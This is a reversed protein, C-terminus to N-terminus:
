SLLVWRRHSGPTSEPWLHPTYWIDQTGTHTGKVEATEESKIRHTHTHPPHVCACKNMVANTAFPQFDCLYGGTPPILQRADKCHLVTSPPPLFWFASVANSLSSRWLIENLFLFLLIRFLMDQVTLQKRTLPPPPPPHFLNKHKDVYVDLSSFCLM